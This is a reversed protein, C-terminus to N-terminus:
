VRGQLVARLITVRKAMPGPWRGTAYDFRLVSHCVAPRIVQPVKPFVPGTEETEGRRAAAYAPALRGIHEGWAHALTLRGIAARMLLTEPELTRDGAEFAQEHGDILGGLTKDSLGTEAVAEIVDHQRPPKGRAIEALADRWWRFRIAGIGPESVATRVCALELNFAYLAVLAKRAEPPAYRSSLWRDEDDRRLRDSLRKWKEEALSTTMQYVAGM